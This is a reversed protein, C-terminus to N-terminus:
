KGKGIMTKVKKWFASDQNSNMAFMVMGRDSKDGGEFFKVVKSPSTQDELPKSDDLGLADRLKGQEVSKPWGAGVLEKALKVLQRAIRVRQTRDM